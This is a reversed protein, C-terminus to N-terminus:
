SSLKVSTDYFPCIVKSNSPYLKIDGVMLSKISHKLYVSLDSHFTRPTVSLFTVAQWPQINILMSSIHNTLVHFNESLNSLNVCFFLKVFRHSGKDSIVFM